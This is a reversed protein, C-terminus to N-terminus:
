VGFFIYPIIKNLCVKENHSQMIVKVTNESIFSLKSYIIYLIRTWVEEQLLSVVKDILKSFHNRKIETIKMKILKKEITFFKHIRVESESPLPTLLYGTKLNFSFKDNRINSTIQIVIVDETQNVLQNSIIIVPRLKAQTLNSPPFPVLVIDGQKYM